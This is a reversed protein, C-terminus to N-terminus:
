RKYPFFADRFIGFGDFVIYIFWILFPLFFTIGLFEGISFNALNM